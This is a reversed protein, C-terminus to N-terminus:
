PAVESIAWWLFWEAIEPSKAVPTIVRWKRGDAGTWRAEGSIGHLGIVKYSWGRTKNNHDLEKLRADVRVGPRVRLLINTPGVPRATTAEPSCDSLEDM